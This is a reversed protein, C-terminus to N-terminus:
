IHILSLGETVGSLAHINYLGFALIGSGIFIHILSLDKIEGLMEYMKKKGDCTTEGIILDSFYFYPCKQTKAFGYSSKVLPCLNRPLDQEAEAITEDSFSCLGVPIAGAAM